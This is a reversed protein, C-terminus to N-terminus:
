FSERKQPPSDVRGESFFDEPLESLIEFARTLNKPITRIIVDHDRKFIEVETAEFQFDKPLRIAQSNGCKFVKATRMKKIARM